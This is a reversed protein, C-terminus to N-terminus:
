PQFWSIVEDWEIDTLNVPKYNKSVLLELEKAFIGIRDGTLPDIIDAALTPLTALIIDDEREIAAKLWKENFDEWFTEAVFDDVSLFNFGGFVDVLDNLGEFGVNLEHPLMKEFVKKMDPNWRGLVTTTKSANGKLKIGSSVVVESIDRVIGKTLIYSAKAIIKKFFVNTVHDDLRRLGYSFFIKVKLVNGAVIVKVKPHNIVETLASAGFAVSFDIFGKKITYDEIKKANDIVVVLASTAAKLYPAAKGAKKWPLLSSVGEWVAGLYDVRKFATDWDNIKEDLVRYAVAQVIADMAANGLIQLAAQMPSLTIGLSKLSPNQDSSGIGNGYYYRSYLYYEDGDNAIVWGEVYDNEPDNTETKFIEWEWENLNFSENNLIFIKGILLSDFAVKSDKIQNPIDVVDGDIEFKVNAYDIIDLSNDWVSSGSYKITKKRWGLALLESDIEDFSWLPNCTTMSKNGECTCYIMKYMKKGFQSIGKGLANTVTSADEFNNGLEKEVIVKVYDNIYSREYDDLCEFDSTVPMKSDVVIKHEGSKLHVKAIILYYPKDILTKFGNLSVQVGESFNESLNYLGSYYVGFSDAYESTPFINILEAVSDQLTTNDVDVSFGTADDMNVFVQSQLPSFFSMSILFVFLKLYKMGNLLKEIKNHESRYKM